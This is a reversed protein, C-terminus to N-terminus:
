EGGANNNTLEIASTLSSVWKGAGEETDCGFTYSRAATSLVWLHDPGAGGKGKGRDDAGGKRVSAEPGLIIVRSAKNAATESGSNFYALMGGGGGLVLTKQKWKTNSFWGSGSGCKWTDKSVLLPPHEEDELLELLSLESGGDNMADEAAAGANKEYRRVAGAAGAGEAEAAAGEAVGEEAARWAIYRESDFDFGGGGWQPLRAGDPLYRQLGAYSTHLQIAEFTERRMFPKVLRFGWTAARPIGCFHTTSGLTGPFHQKQMDMLARNDKDPFRFTAAAGARPAVEVVVCVDPILQGPLVYLKARQMAYVYQQQMELRSGHLMGISAIVPRGQLDRACGGRGDELCVMCGDPGASGPAARLFPAIQDISVEGFEARWTLTSRFQTAAQELDFDRAKLYALLEQKPADPFMAHLSDVKAARDPQLADLIPPPLSSPLEPAPETSPSPAGVM